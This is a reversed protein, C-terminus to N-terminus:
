PRRIEEWVHRAAGLLGDGSVNRMRQIDVLDGRWSFRVRVPWLSEASEVRKGYRMDHFEVVHLSDEYRYSGRAQGMAFWRYIAVEPLQAARRILAHEQKRAFDQRTAIPEFRGLPRVRATLWRDDLEVTTRWVFISGVYPYARASVIHPERATILPQALALARRIAVERMLLGGGIYAVSALLGIWGVATTFRNAHPIKRRRAVHCVLLTTALLGTYLVDIVSVADLAFRRSTFPALLQTGYTTCWDLLPHTLAAILLCAYLLGFSPERPKPPPPQAAAEPHSVRDHLPVARSERELRKRRRRLWWPLAVVLALLPAAFLSHSIGRHYQLLAFEGMEPRIERIAGIALIDADALMAVGAALWTASSGIRQRFGLQATVAGLLGQTIPDM